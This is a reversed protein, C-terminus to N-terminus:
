GRFDYTETKNWEESIKDGVTKEHGRSVNQFDKKKPENRVIGDWAESTTEGMFSHVAQQDTGRSYNLHKGHSIMSPLNPNPQWNEPNLYEGDANEREYKPVGPNITGQVGLSPSRYTVYDLAFGDPTSGFLAVPRPKKPQSFSQMRYNQSRGAIPAFGEAAKSRRCPLVIVSGCVPM